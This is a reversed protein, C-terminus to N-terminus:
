NCQQRSWSFDPVGLDKFLFVLLIVLIGESEKFVNVAPIQNKTSGYARVTQNQPQFNTKLKTKSGDCHRRRKKSAWKQVKIKCLLTKWGDWHRCRKQSAWTQAKVKRLVLKAGECHRCRKKTAWKQVKMEGLVTKSGSSTNIACERPSWSSMARFLILKSNNWCFFTEFILTFLIALVAAASASASGGGGSGGKNTGPPQPAAKKKRSRGLTSTKKTNETTIKCDVEMAVTTTSISGTDM